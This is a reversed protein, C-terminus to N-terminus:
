INFFFEIVLITLCKQMNNQMYIIGIIEFISWYKSLIQESSGFLKGFYNQLTKSLM